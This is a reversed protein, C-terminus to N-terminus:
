SKLSSVQWPFNQWIEGDVRAFLVQWSSFTSTNSEPRPGQQNNFDKGRLFVGSTYSPGSARLVHKRCQRAQSSVNLSPGECHIGKYGSTCHCRYTDLHATCTGGNLCPSVLCQGTVTVLSVSSLFLTIVLHFRVTCSEVTSKFETGTQCACHPVNRQVTVLSSLLGLNILTLLRQNSSM